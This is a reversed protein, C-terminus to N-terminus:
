VLAILLDLAKEYDLPALQSLEPFLGYGEETIWMYDRTAYGLRPLLFQNGFHEVIAGHDKLNKIIRVRFCIRTRTDDIKKICEEIVDEIKRGFFKVKEPRIEIRCMEREFDRNNRVLYECLQLYCVMGPDLPSNLSNYGITLYHIDREKLEEFLRKAYKRYEFEM